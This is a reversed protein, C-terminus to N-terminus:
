PVLSVCNKAQSVSPAKHAALNIGRLAIERLERWAEVDYSYRWPESPGSDVTSEPSLDLWVTM